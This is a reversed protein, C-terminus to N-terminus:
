DDRNRTRPEPAARGEMPVQRPGIERERSHPDDMYVRVRGSTDVVKVRHLDRGEFPVREASLVEGGTQREIRRVSDSLTRGREPIHNPQGREMGGRAQAHAGDAALAFAFVPVSLLAVAPKM